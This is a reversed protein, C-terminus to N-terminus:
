MRAQPLWLRRLNEDSLRQLLLLAPYRSRVEQEVEHLVTQLQEKAHRQNIAEERAMRVDLVLQSLSAYGDPLAGGEAGPIRRRLLDEQEHKVNALERELEACKDRLEWHETELAAHADLAAQKEKKSNLLNKRHHNLAKTPVNLGSV